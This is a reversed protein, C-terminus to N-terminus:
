QLKLETEYYANNFDFNDFDPVLRLQAEITKGNATHLRLKKSMEAGKGSHFILQDLAQKADNVQSPALQLVSFDPRGFKIMGRTHLWVSGDENDSKLVVVHTQPDTEKEFYRASWKSAPQLDLTLLDFVGIGGQEILAQVLGITNRLYDSGGDTAIRGHLITWCDTDKCTDYLTADHQRLVKEITGNLLWDMREGHEQRNLQEIELGQPITDVHHKTRSVVLESADSGFVIYYLLPQYRDDTEM